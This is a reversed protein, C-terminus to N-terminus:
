GGGVKLMVDLTDGDRLVETPPVSTGGVATAFFELERESYGLEQLLDAVTTDAAVELVKSMEPFPRRMPGAFRITVEAM